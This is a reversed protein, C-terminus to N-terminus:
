WRIVREKISYYLKATSTASNKTRNMTYQFSM